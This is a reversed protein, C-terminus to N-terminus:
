NLKYNFNLIPFLKLKCILFNFFVLRSTMIDVYEDHGSM